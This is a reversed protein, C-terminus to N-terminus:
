TADWPMTFAGSDEVHINAELVTGDEILAVVPTGSAVHYIHMM